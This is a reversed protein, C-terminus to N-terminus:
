RKIPTPLETQEFGKQVYGAYAMEWIGECNRTINVSIIILQEPM